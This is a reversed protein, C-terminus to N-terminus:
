RIEIRAVCYYPRSLASPNGLKGNVMLVETINCYISVRVSPATSRHTLTSQNFFYRQYCQEQWATRFLKNEIM